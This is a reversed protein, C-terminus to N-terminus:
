LKAASPAAIELLGKLPAPDWNSIAWLWFEPVTAVQGPEPEPQMLLRHVQLLNQLARADDLGSAGYQKSLKHGDTDVIMPLHMYAPQRYGLVRQLQIQMATAGLLDSGRVIETIGQEADDVVVALQYAILGDRRRVIFDGCDKSVDACVQGQLNDDFCTTGPRCIFRLAMGAADQMRANRCTGPYAYGSPTPAGAAAIDRRSCHCVYLHHQDRLLELAALYHESRKSQYTIEGHWEFGHKDLSALIADAAGAIERPPDLDEMRILWQGTFSRSRLYSGMAALLSGLHLPGTPSPAFRGRYNGLPTDVTM